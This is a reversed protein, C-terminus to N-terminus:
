SFSIAHVHNEIKKSFANTLRMFRRMGMRVSLNAREAHSTSVQAM